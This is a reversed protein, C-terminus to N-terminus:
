ELENGEPDFSVAVEEGAQNTLVFQYEVEGSAKSVKYVKSLQLSAYASGDFATSVKEPLDDKTIEVKDDQMVVINASTKEVPLATAFATAFSFVSVLVILATKKM